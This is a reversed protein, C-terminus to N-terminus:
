KLNIITSGGDPGLSFSSVHKNKKLAEWLAQRLRGSGFGHIVKVSSKKDVLAKSIYDEMMEVGEHTHYILLHILVLVMQLILM